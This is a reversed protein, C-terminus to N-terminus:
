GDPYRRILEIFEDIEEKEVWETASLLWPNEVDDLMESLDMGGVVQHEVLYENLDSPSVPANVVFDQFIPTGSFPAEFGDVSQIQDYLYHTNRVTNEAVKRVGKKGLACMWITSRLANLGQNTCINSTARERRIHQERTQLTLVYATDEGEETQTEGVIRGPLERIYEERTSIFGFTPGGFNLDNGLPQGEGVAVDAPWNGPPRLCSLSVPEVVGVLPVDKEQIITSLKEVPELCGLFNPNQLVAVAVPQDLSERLEDVDLIGADNRPVEEIRLPHFQLYTELVNKYEPHLTEPVLVAKEEDVMGALMLVAEALSAPGDYHSANSVDMGTLECILSQYEYFAQLIGQSAEPQYPTYATYFENRGTLEEVVAPVFHHYMGGGLFSTTESVNANKESLRRVHKLLDQEAFAEPIDLSESQQISEPVPDLLEDFSEVGIEELMQKRERETHPIYSM